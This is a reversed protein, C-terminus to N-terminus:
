KAKKAPAAHKFYEVERLRKQAEGRTLGPKSLNKKGDSSKVQFGKGSKVIVAAERDTAPVVRLRSPVSNRKPSPWAILRWTAGPLTVAWM